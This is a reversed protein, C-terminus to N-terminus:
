SQKEYCTGEKIRNLYDQKYRVATKLSEMDAKTMKQSHKHYANTIIVKANVTTFNFFREDRPKINVYTHVDTLPAIKLPHLVVM